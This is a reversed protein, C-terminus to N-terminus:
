LAAKVKLAHEVASAVLGRCGDVDVRELGAHEGGFACGVVFDVDAHTELFWVVSSLFLSRGFESREPNSGAPRLWERLDAEIRRKAEGAPRGRELQLEAEVSVEAYKPCLVAIQSAGDFVVGGTAHALLFDEVLGALRVSPLPLRDTSRPVVVVGFWGPACESTRSHHPLCRLLAVDPFEDRVLEEVDWPTIARNRHRLLASTRRFFSADPEPGRGAWSAAPNSVGKIGPVALKLQKALGPALPTEPTPDHRERGPPFQYRAEVADTRLRRIAGGLEPTDCSAQLWFGAPEAVDAAGEQWDEAAVLRLIGTQRLDSTGDVVDLTRWAGGTAAYAWHVRPDAQVADCASREDIEVYLAVVEGPPASALGVYFTGPRGSPDLRFPRLSAGGLQAPAGLGNRAFLRLRDPDLKTTREDTVYDVSVTAVHPPQPPLVLKVQSSQSTAIFHVNQALDQEYAAWGFDTTRLVARISHGEIGGLTSRESFPDTVRFGKPSRALATGFTAEHFKEWRGNLFRQWEVPPLHRQPAPRGHQQQMKAKPAGEKVVPAVGTDIGGILVDLSTLPKGFASDLRLGFSDGRRPVPGFPKFEKTVDIVGDNSFGSDPPVGEASVSLRAQGFSLALADRRSFDSTGEPPFSATLHVLSEAGIPQPASSGTFSFSLTVYATGTAKPPALVTYGEPTSLRWVLSGFLKTVAADTPPDPGLTVEDFSLDITYRGGTFWLLDSAVYLEHAALEDNPSGFARFPEPAPDLKGSHRAIRDAAGAPAYHTHAGVVDIGLATLPEVTQYLREGGFANTGAKVAAGQPLVAGRRKPDGEVVLFVRDARPPLREIGLRQELYRSRAKAPLADLHAVLGRPGAHLRALVRLLTQSPETEDRLEDGAFLLDSWSALDADALSAPLPVTRATAALEAVVDQWTRTDARYPSV